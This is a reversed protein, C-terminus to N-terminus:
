KAPQDVGSTPQEGRDAIQSAFHAIAAELVRHKFPGSPLDVRLRFLVERVKSGIWVRHIKTLLNCGQDLTRM